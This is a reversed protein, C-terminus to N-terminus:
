KEIFMRTRLDAHKAQAVFTSKIRNIL